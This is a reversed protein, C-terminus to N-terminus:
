MKNKFQDIMNIVSGIAVVIAGLIFLQQTKLLKFWEFEISFNAYAILM